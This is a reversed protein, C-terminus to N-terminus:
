VSFGNEEIVDHKSDRGKGAPDLSKEVLTAMAKNYKKDGSREWLKGDFLQQKISSSYPLIATVSKIHACVEEVPCLARDDTRNIVNLLRQDTDNVLNKSSVLWNISKIDPSIVRIIRDANTLAYRSLEEGPYYDVFVFDAEKQMTRFLREIKGKDPVPYSSKNEGAKLGLCTFNNMNPTTVLSKLLNEASMDTKDLLEAVSYIEDSRKNPFLYGIAPVANDMSLFIIRVNKLAFYTEVALKMATCTQGSGPAGILTVLDAM